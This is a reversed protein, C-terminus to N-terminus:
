ATNNADPNREQPEDDKTGKAAPWRQRQTLRYPRRLEPTPRRRHDSYKASLRREEHSSVMRNADDKNALAV